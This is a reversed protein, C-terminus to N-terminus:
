IRPPTPQGAPAVERQPRKDDLYAAAQLTFLEAYLGGLAMLSDHTGHERVAGRDLVYIRDASRVSSFRHSILVVTRGALLRRLREFLEAEARPDMASTPEDLILLPADRFFSRALAVRQWQGISLDRGGEFERGLMSQYGSRLSSLLEHVDAERAAREVRADDGIFEPRGAAINEHATMRYRVFDQFIVSVADRISDPALTAIDVGDWTVAGSTPQYLNALLKALTTKGSGNEGVLAVIEGARIEVNVHELAPETAGPYIFGVDDAHIRDFRPPAPQTPRAAEVAPLLKVFASYDDLFLSGEYLTGASGIFSQLRSTLQLLAAISTAGAALSIAEDLYLYGLVGLVIVTMGSTGLSAIISRRERQRAVLRLGDMYRNCLDDYRRRLVTGLGFARVEKAEDRGTLTSLLYFRERDIKTTEVFFDYLARSNRLRALWIPLASLLTLPLLIPSLLTLAVILAGVTLASSALGTVGNVMQFPRNAGNRVARQLRDFFAPSEFAKLEVAEAVDLVRNYALRSVLEGLVTAQEKQVANAIGLSVTLAFLAVLYPLADGYAATTRDSSLLEDLIQKGIVLQVVVGVAVFVQLLGMLVFLRPGAAWTMRIAEHVLQPLKRLSRDTVLPTWEDAVSSQEEEQDTSDDPPRETQM